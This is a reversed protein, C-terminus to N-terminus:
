VPVEGTQFFRVVLERTDYTVGNIQFTTSVNGYLNGPLFVSNEGLISQTLLDIIDPTIYALYIIAALILAGLIFAITSAAIHQNKPRELWDRQDPPLKPKTRMASGSDIM